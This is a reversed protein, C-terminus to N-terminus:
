CLVLLGAPLWLLLLPLLEQLFAVLLLWAPAQSALVDLASVQMQTEEAILVLLVLLQCQLCLSQAAALLM